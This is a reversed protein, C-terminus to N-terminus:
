LVKIFTPPPPQAPRIGVMSSHCAVPLNTICAHGGCRHQAGVSSVIPTAIRGVDPCTLRFRSCTTLVPHAVNCCWIRRQAPPPVRHSMSGYVGRAVARSQCRGLGCSRAYRHWIAMMCGHSAGNGPPPCQLHEHRPDLMHLDFAMCGHVVRSPRM